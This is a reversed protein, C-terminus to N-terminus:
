FQDSVHLICLIFSVNYFLCKQSVHSAASHMNQASGVLHHYRNESRISLKSAAYSHMTAVEMAM